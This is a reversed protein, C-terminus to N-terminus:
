GRPKTTARRQAKAVNLNVRSHRRYIPVYADHQPHSAALDMSDEPPDHVCTTIQVAGPDPTGRGATDHM